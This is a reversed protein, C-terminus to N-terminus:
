PANNVITNFTQPAITGDDVDYTTSSNGYGANWYFNGALGASKNNTFQGQFEQARAADGDGQVYGWEVNVSPKHLTNICYSVGTPLFAEAGGYTKFACVNNNSSAFIQRYDQGGNPRIDISTDSGTPMMAQGAADVLTFHSGPTVTGVYAGDPIHAGVIVSGADNAVIGSDNITSNSSNDTITDTRVRSIDLKSLGGPLTLIANGADVKWDSQVRAFYNTLDRSTYYFDNSGITPDGCGATSGPSQVATGWNSETVTQMAPGTGAVTDHTAGGDNAYYKNTERPEGSFGVLVIEPDASYKKGTKTNVHNAALNIFTDWDNYDTVWNKCAKSLVIKFDSIDLFVRINPSAYQADAIFTDLNTWESSSTNEAQAITDNHSMWNSTRVTNLHQKQALTIAGAPNSDLGSQSTSSYFSAGYPYYTTAGICFSTGNSCVTMPTLGTTGSQGFHTLLISLDLINVIGDGNFDEPLGSGAQGWNSLFISLDLVNVTGDGNLDGVLNSFSHGYFQLRVGIGAFVLVFFIL